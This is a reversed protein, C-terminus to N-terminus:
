RARAEHGQGDGGHHARPRAQGPDACHHHLHGAECHDRPHPRGPAAQIRRGDGQRLRRRDRCQRRRRGGLHVERRPERGAGQGRPARRVRLGARRPAQGDRHGSPRRRGRWAGRGTGAGRHRGRDDDDASHPRLARGRRDGGQLRRHQEALLACGDVARPQHAPDAGDRLLHRRPRRLAGGARAAAATRAPGGARRRPGRALTRRGRHRRLAARPGQDRSRRRRVRNERRGRHPRGSRGASRGVDARRRRRRKGGAGRRRPGHIEQDFGPLRCYPNRGPRNGESGRDENARRSRSGPLPLM